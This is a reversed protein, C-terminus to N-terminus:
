RTKESPIVLEFCTSIAIAGSSGPRSTFTRPPPIPGPRGPLRPAASARGSRFTTPMQESPAAIYEIVASQVAAWWLIGTVNTISPFAAYRMRFSFM